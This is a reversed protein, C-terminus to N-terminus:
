SRAERRGTTLTPSALDTEKATTLPRFADTGQAAHVTMLPRFDDTDQAASM